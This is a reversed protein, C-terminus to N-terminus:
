EHMRWYLQSCIINFSSPIWGFVYRKRNLFGIGYGYIQPQQSGMDEKALNKEQLSQLADFSLRTTVWPIGNYGAVYGAVINGVDRASVYVSLGSEIDDYLPMGRYKGIDDKPGYDDSILRTGNTRKFDFLQGSYANLAYYAADPTYKKISNFFRKGSDDNPDIVSGKMWAGKGNNADSNYFSTIFLTRGVLEKIMEGNVVTYAYINLDHDMRGFDVTYSGDANLIVYTSMGDPDIKNVPDGHCYSYPSMGPYDESKIDPQTFLGLAPYLHRPGFDLHGLGHMTLLEKGGYKYPQVLPLEGSDEVSRLLGEPYYGDREEVKGDGSVVARVNGQCDRVFYHYDFSKGDKKPTLYGGPILVRELVGDRYIYNGSYERRSVVVRGPQSAVPCVTDWEAVKVGMGDYEIGIRGGNAFRYHMAQNLRNYVIRTIGRGSDSTMNGNADWTFRSEGEPMDNAGEYSLYDAADTVSTVLNGDYSYTLDDILGYVAEGEERDAVGYRRLTLPNSNLDYSYVATEENGEKVSVLRNMGDYGYTTLTLDGGYKQRIRAVSGNACGPINRVVSQSYATSAVSSLSGTYEYGYDIGFNGDAVTQGILRQRDNYENALIVHGASGDISHTVSLQRGLRDYAYTLSETHTVNGDRTHRTDKSSVQGDHRYRMSVCDVYGFRNVNQTQVPNGSLSYYTASARGTVLTGTARGTASTHRADGRGAAYALSAQKGLPSLFGYDDYYCATLVSSATVTFGAGDVRYGISTVSNDRMAVPLGVTSETPTVTMTLEGVLAARGHSDRISYGWVGRARRNGDQTLVPVGETDCVSVIRERGPLRRVTVAGSLPHYGYYYGLGALPESGSEWRSKGSLELRRSCEPSLMHRLRGLGDYVFYTDAYETDSLVRRELICNGLFDTFTLVQRGDEDTVSSIIYRGSANGATGSALTLVGSLDCRYVRCGYLGTKESVYIGNRLPDASVHLFPGPRRVEDPTEGQRSAYSYGTYLYGNRYYPTITKEAEAPTSIIGGSLPVPIWERSVRSWADYETITSLGNTFGSCANELVTQWPRGLGDHYVCTSVKETGAADLLRTERVFNHSAGESVIGYEHRLLTGHANDSVSTLCGASDYGYTVKLGAPDTVTELGVLPRHTFLTTLAPTGEETISIPYLGAADWKITQAPNGLTKSRTVNGRSDYNWEGAVGTKGDRNILVSTPFYANGTKGYVIQSRQTVGRFTTSVAVPLVSFGAKAMASVYAAKAGDILDSSAFNGSYITRVTRTETGDSVSVEVPYRDSGSMFTRSETVMTEVGNDGYTTVTRGSEVLSYLLLSSSLSEYIGDTYWAINYSLHPGSTASNCPPFDPQCDGTTCEVLRRVDLEKGSPRLVPGDYAYSIESVIRYGGEASVYRREFDLLPACSPAAYLDDAHRPNWIMMYDNENLRIFDYETKGYTGYETVRSYWMEPEGLGLSMCTSFGSVSTLRCKINTENHLNTRRVFTFPSPVGTCTALDEGDTEYSYTREDVPSGDGADTVIRRVRLGGGTGVATASQLFDLHMLDRIGEMPHCPNEFRHPEYEYETTGGTPYIVKTLMYTQMKEVDVSRDATDSGDVKIFSPINFPRNQYEIEMRPVLSRNGRKGNNYGWLDQSADNFFSNPNYEFRYTGEGTLTVSSLLCPLTRGGPTRYYHRTGDYTLSCERVTAGAHDSVRIQDLTVGANKGTGSYIFSVGGGPWTISRPNWITGNSDVYTAGEVGSVTTGPIQLETATVNSYMDIFSKTAAIHRYNANWHEEWELTFKQGTPLLIETLGWSTYASIEGVYEMGTFTYRNGMGDLIVITKLSKDTNSISVTKDPSVFRMSKRTHEIAFTFSHGPLHATFVDHGPDLLDTQNVNSARNLLCLRHLEYDTIGTTDAVNRYQEDPRGIVTRTIRLGPNVAWGYGCPFPNDFVKIGNSHYELSVPISIGRYSVTYVPISVNVAGTALLPQGARYMNFKASSPTPPVFSRSLLEESPDSSRAARFVPAGVSSSDPEEPLPTVSITDAIAPADPNDPYAVSSVSAAATLFIAAIPHLFPKM